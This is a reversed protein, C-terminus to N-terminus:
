NCNIIVINGNSDKNVKGWSGFSSNNGKLLTLGTGGNTTSLLNVLGIENQEVTNGTNVYFNYLNNFANLQAPNNPSFVNQAFSNFKAIDEIALMYTTGHATVLGFTYNAKDIITPNQQIAYLSKFDNNSFISLNSSDDEHNHIFGVGVSNDFFSSTFNYNSGNAGGNHYTYTTSGNGGTMLYASEYPENLKSKLDLMKTKFDQNSALSIGQACPDPCSTIGTTGGICGCAAMYAGPGYQACPNPPQEGGGDDCTGYYYCDDEDEGCDGTNYNATDYCPDEGGLPVCVEEFWETWLLEEHCSREVGGPADPDDITECIEIYHEIYEQVCYYLEKPTKPKKSHKSSKKIAKGDKITM